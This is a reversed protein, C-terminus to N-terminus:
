QDARREARLAEMLRGALAGAAEDQVSRGLLYGLLDELLAQEDSRAERAARVAEHGAKAEKRLECLLEQLETYWFILGGMDDIMRRELEKRLASGFTSHMKVAQASLDDADRTHPIADGLAERDGLLESLIDINRATGEAGTEPSPSQGDGGSNSNAQQTPNTM